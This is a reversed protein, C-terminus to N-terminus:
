HATPAGPAGDTKGAAALAQKRAAEFEDGPTWAPMADMEALVVGCLFGARADEVVGEFSWSSDLEDSPQHYHRAEWAEIQQKGWGPPRGVFDLGQDFYLAPVGMKAFNFQDSRYFFGRDPFQDPVVVRGQRAAVSAAVADIDSKGKGVLTLDRTRGWINAGDFNIDAAISGPAFTAHKCYYESGLLGSEETGLALFLVSRRPPRPLATFARAIALIQAVGSANDLAGNYIDDGTSDPKGVGLHDHHASFVVVENALAADRGPLLGLVNATRAQTLRNELVISTTVGLPVPRFSRKHASLVLKDLDKGALAVLRRAAAETVWGRVQLRAEGADPLEFQEGSWSSQVVHWPYGASPQTHIVLAGAAGQRAASEYKYDWRGYYLRMKGAFLKPDWDPDNNLVLLVKGRLDAGKFDDWAYEPATMGYGVFVVEAGDLRAAPQQVGSVAIYDEWYGLELRADARAFAWTQPPTASVGVIDFPQQWAGGAAGPRLGLAEFSTAIYARALSDGRSAAGRGQLLDHALFRVPGAIAAATIQEAARDAEPPLPLEAAAVAAALCALLACARALLM